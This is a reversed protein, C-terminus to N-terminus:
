GLRLLELPKYALQTLKTFGKKRDDVYSTKRYFVSPVVDKFAKYRYM